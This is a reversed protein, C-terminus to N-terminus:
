TGRGDGKQLWRAVALEILGRQRAARVLLALFLSIGLGVFEPAGAKWILGGILLTVLLLLWEAKGPTVWGMRAVAVAWCQRIGSRSMVAAKEHSAM